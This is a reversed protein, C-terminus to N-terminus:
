AEHAVFRTPPGRSTATRGARVLPAPPTVTAVGVVLISAVVVSVIAAGVVPTHQTVACTACPQTAPHAAHNHAGAVVPVLLLGVLLM